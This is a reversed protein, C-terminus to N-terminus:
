NADPLHSIDSNSEVLPPTLHLQSCSYNLFVCSSITQFVEGCQMMKLGLSWGNLVSARKIGAEWWSSWHHHATQMRKKGQTSPTWSLELALCPPAILDWKFSCNFESIGQVTARNNSTDLPFYHKWYRQTSNGYFRMLNIAGNDSYERFFKNWM